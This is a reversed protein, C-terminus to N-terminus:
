IVILGERRALIVVRSVVFEEQMHEKTAKNNKTATAKTVNQGKCCNLTFLIETHCSTCASKRHKFPFFAFPSRMSTIGRIDSSPGIARESESNRFLAYTLYKTELKSPSTCM